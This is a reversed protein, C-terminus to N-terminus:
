LSPSNWHCPGHHVERLEDDTDRVAQTNQGLLLILCPTNVNRCGHRRDAIGADESVADRIKQVVRDFVRGILAHDANRRGLRRRAIRHDVHLVRSRANRRRVALPYELTEISDVVRPRSIGAADAQTEGDRPPRDFRVSTPDLELALLSSAGDKPDDERSGSLFTLIEFTPKHNSERALSGMVVLSFSDFSMAMVM